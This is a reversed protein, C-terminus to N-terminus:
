RHYTGQFMEDGLLQIQGPALSREQYLLQLRVPPKGEVPSRVTLEISGPAASESVGQVTLFMGPRSHMHSGIEVALKGSKEGIDIMCDDGAGCPVQWWTGSLDARTLTSRPPALDRARLWGAIFKDHGVNYYVACIFEGDAAGTRVFDGPVLYIKMRSPCRKGDSCSRPQHYFYSRDETQSMVRSFGTIQTKSSCDAAATSAAAFSSGAAFLLGALQRRM